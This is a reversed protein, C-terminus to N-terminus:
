GNILTVGQYTLLAHEVENKRGRRGLFMAQTKRVNMKLGNNDVWSAVGDLASELTDKLKTSNRSSHYLATDDAYLSVSCQNINVPLDNVFVGFLLLLLISGQPIGREVPRWTSVISNVLVRQKRGTLYNKFWRLSCTKKFEM